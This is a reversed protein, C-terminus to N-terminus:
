NSVVLTEASSRRVLEALALMDARHILGICGGTGSNWNRGASPDLHIGLVRRGTTFLPELGIWVPGLERPYEQGLPEVAGIAYSGPPLPSQSGMQHRNAGQFEARGSVADFHRVPQGPIEVKLDWIPDGTRPLRRNTREFTLRPSTGLALEQAAAPLALSALLACGGLFRDRGM